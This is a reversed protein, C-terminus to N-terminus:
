VLKELFVAVGDNDNTETIEDAYKKLEKSGNGMAVKYGVVNFMSIDNDEDGIAITDKLDISLNKCFNKIGNGKSVGVNAVDFFIKRGYTEINDRLNRDQNIIELNKMKMVKDRLVKVKELDEDAIVCQIIINSNVFTEIDTKLEEENMEKLVKPKRNVVRKETTNISFEVRYQEALKYLEICTKKDMQNIYIEKNEKYDQVIAGNSTIIYKSAFCKKSLNETFEKPRGSCLVVLIGKQTVKKISEITRDTIEKKSNRLTGDIDIFIAKYTKKMNREMRM